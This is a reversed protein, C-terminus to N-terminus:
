SKCKESKVSSKFKIKKIDIDALHGPYSRKLVM